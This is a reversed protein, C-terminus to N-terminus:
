GREGDATAAATWAVALMSHALTALEAPPFAEPDVGALADRLGGLYSRYAGAAREAPAEPSWIQRCTEVWARYAQEARQRLEASPTADELAQLYSAYATAARSTDDESVGAEQLAGFYRAAVEFYQRQLEEQVNV